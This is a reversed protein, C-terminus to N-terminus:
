AVEHSDKTLYKSDSYGYYQYYASADQSVANLVIGIKQVNTQGQLLRISRDLSQRETVRFRALLLTFDALSSLVVSDTVPLVPAGDIIVFDFHDRWIRMGDRMQDSGLLESPYPPVPGSTIVFLNPTEPNQNVVSLANDEGQGALFSSLGHNNKMKLARHLGPRRLDADILLVKKGQQSLLVSLNLSLM